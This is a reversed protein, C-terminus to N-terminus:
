HHFLAESLIRENTVSKPLVTNYWQSGLEGTLINM